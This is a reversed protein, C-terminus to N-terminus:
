KRPNHSSWGAPRGGKRPDSSAVYGEETRVIMQVVALSPERRITHGRAELDAIVGPESWAEEILLLDPMWQHHVRARSVAQSASEEFILAHLLAQLTASIIRPGGSAGAVAEVRGEADLVITPSMSSLPRKGSAPANRDSQTLGFANPVGPRAAFDDLQNNMLFGYEPIALLSGFELNVTETCAVANGWRDVVSFHSTGADDRPAFEVAGYDQPSLTRQPDFRAAMADLHEESLLRNLPVDAMADDGLWRSRDAYAHKMAEVLLHLWAADQPSSGILSEHREIVGLVQLMAVGGSSPPPMTLWTRGLRQAALPKGTRVQYQSLDGPGFTPCARRIALAIEGTYFVPEGFRALLRLTQALEPQRLTNGESPTGAFLFREWLFEFAEDGLRERISPDAEIRAIVRQAASVYSADIAFGGEAVEIAPALVVERDLTGYLDLALLLGAVTGPVGSATHGLTSSRGPEQTAFFDPTVASPATERYNVVASMAATEGEAPMHVVMFGGGGIGCSEPRVVALAFSTAVAADVANGGRQLMALGARSAIPHDAAVVGLDFATDAPYEQPPALTSYSSACGAASLMAAIALGIPIAALFRRPSLM